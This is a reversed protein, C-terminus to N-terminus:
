SRSEGMPQVDFEVVVMAQPGLPYMLRVVFSMGISRIKCIASATKNADGRIKALEERETSTFLTYIFSCLQCGDAASSSLNQFSHHQPQVWEKKMNLSRKARAAKLVEKVAEPDCGLQLWYAHDDDKVVEPDLRLRLWDAHDDEKMVEPDFGLRLWDAHDDEKISGSSPHAAKTWYTLGTDYDHVRDGWDLHRLENCKSCLPSPAEIVNAQPTEEEMEFKFYEEQDDEDAIEEDTDYDGFGFGGTPGTLLSDQEICFPGATTIPFKPPVGYSLVVDETERQGTIPMSRPASLFIPSDDMKLARCISISTADRASTGRVNAM